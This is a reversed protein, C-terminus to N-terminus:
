PGVRAKWYSPRRRSHAVAVIQIVVPLDRYVIAFPFRKLLFRRTGRIGSPCREPAEAILTVAREIERAFRLAARESRELYWAFAADFELSAAEHFEVKKSRM